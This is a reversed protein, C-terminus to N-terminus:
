VKVDKEVLRRHHYSRFFIFLVPEAGRFAGSNLRSMAQKRLRIHFAIYFLGFIFKSLRFDGSAIIKLSAPSKSERFYTFKMKM